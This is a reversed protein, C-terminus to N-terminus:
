FFGGPNNALLEITNIITGVAFFILAGIVGNKFIAKATTVRASNNGASMYTLGSWILTIGLIIGAIVYLWSAFGLALDVFSSADLAPSNWPFARIQALAVQPLFSLSLGGVMYLYKKM